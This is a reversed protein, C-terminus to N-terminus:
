LQGPALVVRFGTAMGGGGARANDRYASRCGVADNLWSGGRVVRYEGYSVPAPRQLDTAIGGPLSSSWGDQCWEVVNGHMDYLGWANPLKQGVSQTTGTDPLEGYWAYNTLNTYGPDDGYSFPRDM